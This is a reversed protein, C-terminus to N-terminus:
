LNLDVHFDIALLIFMILFTLFIIVWFWNPFRKRGMIDEDSRKLSWTTGLALFIAILLKIFM